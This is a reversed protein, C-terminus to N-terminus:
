TLKARSKKPLTFHWHCRLLTESFFNGPCPYRDVGTLAGGLLIRKHPQCTPSSLTAAVQRHTRAKASALVFPLAQHGQRLLPDLSGGTRLPTVAYTTPDIRLPIREM